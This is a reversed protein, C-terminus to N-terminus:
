PGITVGISAGSGAAGFNCTNCWGTTTKSFTANITVATGAALAGAVAPISGTWAGGTDTLATTALTRAAVTVTASQVRLVCPPSGTYTYTFGVTRAASLVTGATLTATATGTTGSCLGFFAFKSILRDLFLSPLLLTMGPNESSVQEFTGVVEELRGEKAARKLVIVFSRLDVPIYPHVITGGVAEEGLGPDKAEAHM